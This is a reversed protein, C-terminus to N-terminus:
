YWGGNGVEDDSKAATHNVRAALLLSHCKTHTHPPTCEYHMM